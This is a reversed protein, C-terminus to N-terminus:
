DEAAVPHDGAAFAVKLLDVFRNEAHSHYRHRHRVVVIERKPHLGAIERVVVGTDRQRIAMRPIIAIGVGAAVLAKMTQVQSCQGGIELEIEHEGLLRKTQLALSSSEGLFILKEGALREPPIRGIRALPHKTPVALLLDESFLEEVVFEEREPPLSMLLLDLKGAALEEVLHSRFDEHVEVRVEPLASHLREFITPLLYPGISPLVGLRLLGRAGTDRVERVADEVEFLIRRARALLRRGSETLEVRRGLRDFLPSGLEGELKIIQQSLSPQSVFCRRAAETFSGTEAVAVFYRLQHMEM